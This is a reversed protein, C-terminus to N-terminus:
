LLSTLYTYLSKRNDSTLAAGKYIFLNKFIGTFNMSDDAAAGINNITFADPDNNTTSGWTKDEYLGESHVYVALRGTAGNSRQITVFYDTNLTITDSVETFNSNGSGGIKCRFGEENNIRFFNNANSGYMARANTNTFVVHAMISFDQNAAIDINTNIDMFTDGDFLIMPKESAPATGYTGWTPKDASTTQVAKVSLSNDMIDIWENVKDTTSMTGVGVGLSQGGVITTGSTAHAPSLAGGSADEDSSVGWQFSFHHFLNQVQPPSFVIRKLSPLSLSLGLKLM